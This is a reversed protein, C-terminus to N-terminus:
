KKSKISGGKKLIFNKKLDKRDMTVGKSTKRTKGTTQGDRVEPFSFEYPFKQKGKSYGSTDVKQTSEGSVAAPRTTKKILNNGSAKQVVTTPYTSGWNEKYSTERKVVKGSENKTNKVLKGNLTRFQIKNKPDQRIDKLKDKVATSSAVEAKKTYAPKKKISKKPQLM